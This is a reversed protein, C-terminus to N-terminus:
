GAAPVTLALDQIRGNDHELYDALQERAQGGRAAIVGINGVATFVESERNRIVAILQEAKAPQSKVVAESAWRVVAASTTKHCVTILADATEPSIQEPLSVVLGACDANAQLARRLHEEAAV